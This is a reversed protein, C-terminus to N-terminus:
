VKRERKTYDESKPLWKSLAFYKDLADIQGIQRIEAYNASGYHIM